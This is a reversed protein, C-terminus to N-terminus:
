PRQAGAAGTAKPWGQGLSRAVAQLRTAPVSFRREVSGLFVTVIRTVAVWSEVKSRLSTPACTVSHGDDVSKALLHPAFRDDLRLLETDRIHRVVDGVSAQSDQAMLAVLRDVAAQLAALVESVVAWGVAGTGSAPKRRRSGPSNRRERAPVPDDGTVAANLHM